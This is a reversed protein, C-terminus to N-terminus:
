LPKKADLLKLALNATKLRVIMEPTRLASLSYPSQSPDDTSFEWSWIMALPGGLEQLRQMLDSDWNGDKENGAQFIKEGFEGIFIPKGMRDAASVIWPLEFAHEGDRTIWLPGDEKEGYIHVSVIDLPPPNFFSLMTVYQEYLDRSWDMRFDKPHLSESFNLMQVRLHWAAPRMDANGSTVLHHHDLRKILTGMQMLFTRIQDSNPLQNDPLPKLQFSLDAELNYENGIEWFLIRPDDKYRSVIASVYKVALSNSLSGPTLYEGVQENNRTTKRVYDPMQHINFLLSPVVTIHATDAASLMRDFSELWRAPEKVFIELEDPGWSGGFCRVCRVGAESARTLSAVADTDQGNLFKLFLDPLNAGVNRYTRGNVVLRTGSAKLFQPKVQKVVRMQSQSLSQMLSIIFVALVLQILSSRLTPNRKGEGGSGREWFCFLPLRLRTNARRGRPVLMQPQPSTLRGEGGSGREWFCFLPLPPHPSTLTTGNDM